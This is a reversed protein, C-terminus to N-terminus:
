PEFNGGKLVEVGDVRLSIDDVVVYGKTSFVVVEVSARGPADGLEIRESLRTWVPTDTPVPLTKAERSKGSADAISLRIADDLSDTGDSLVWMSFEVVKGKPLPLTPSRLFSANKAKAGPTFKLAAAGAHVVPSLAELKHAPDVPGGWKEPMVGQRPAPPAYLKALRERLKGKGFADLKPWAKAYWWSARDLVAQRAGNSKGLAKAWADGIEVETFQNSDAKKEADLAARVEQGKVKEFYPMAADWEGRAGYFAALVLNAAPDDPSRELTKRAKEVPDQPALLLLLACAVTKM